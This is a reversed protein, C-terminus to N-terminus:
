PVYSARQPPNCSVPVGAAARANRGPTTCPLSLPCSPCAYRRRGGQAPPLQSHGAELRAAPQCVAFSPGTMTGDVDVINMLRRARTGGRFAIQQGDPSRGPDGRDRVARLCSTREGQNTGNANMTGIANSATFAIKTGDPSWVAPDAGTEPSTGGTGDTNMVLHRLRARRRLRDEHRRPVLRPCPQGWGKHAPRARWRRQDSSRSTAATIARTFAFQTGDPSWTMRKWKYLSRRAATACSPRARGTPRRSGSRRAMSMPSRRATRRGCPTGCGGSKVLENGYGDPNM